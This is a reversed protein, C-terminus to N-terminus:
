KILEVADATEAQTPRAAQSSHSQSLPKYWMDRALSFIQILFVTDILHMDSQEMM